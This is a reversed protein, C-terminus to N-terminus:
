SFLLEIEVSILNEDIKLRAPHLKNHSFGGEKLERRMRIADAIARNKENEYCSDLDDGDATKMGLQPFNKWLPLEMPPKVPIRQRKEEPLTVDVINAHFQEQSYVRSNKAVSPSFIKLWVQECCNLNASM